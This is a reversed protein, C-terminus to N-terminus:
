LDKNNFTVKKSLVLGTYLGTFLIFPFLNNGVPAAAQKDPLPEHGGSNMDDYEDDTSGLLGTNSTSVQSAELLFNEGEVLYPLYGEEPLSIAFLSNVFFFSFGILAISIISKIKM